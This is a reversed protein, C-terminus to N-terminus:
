HPKQLGRHVASSKIKLREAHGCLCEFIRLDHNPEDSLEVRVLMMCSGCKSCAPRDNQIPVFLKFSQKIPM